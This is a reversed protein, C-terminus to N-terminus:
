NSEPNKHDPTSIDRKENNSRPEWVLYVNNEKFFKGHAGYMLEASDQEKLFTNPQM